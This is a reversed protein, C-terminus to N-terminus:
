TDWFIDMWKGKQELIASKKKLLWAEQMCGMLFYKESNQINKACVLM